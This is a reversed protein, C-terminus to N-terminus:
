KLTPEVPFIQQRPCSFIGRSVHRLERRGWAQNCTSEIPAAIRRRAAAIRRRARPWDFAPGSRDQSRARHRQAGGHRRPSLRPYADCLAAVVKALADYQAAEYPLTDTGELEVGMSFDNCAERGEYVSRGAHWARETFAVYQTVAGDRTM